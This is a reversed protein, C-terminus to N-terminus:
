RLGLLHMIIRKSDIWGTDVRRFSGFNMSLFAVLVHHNREARVIREGALDQQQQGSFLRKNDM